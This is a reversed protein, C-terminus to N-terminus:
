CLGSDALACLPLVKAAGHAVCDITAITARPPLPPMDASPLRPPPPPPLHHDSSGRDPISLAVVNEHMASTTLATIFKPPRMTAM